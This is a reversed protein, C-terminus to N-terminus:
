LTSSTIGSAHYATKGDVVLRKGQPLEHGIDLPNREEFESGLALTGQFCPLKQCFFGNIGDEAVDIHGIEVAHIEDLRQLCRREDDEGCGIAFIGHLSEPDIGYIIEQFGESEVIEATGGITDFFPHFIYGGVGLVWGSV